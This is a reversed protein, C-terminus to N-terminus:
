SKKVEICVFGAGEVFGDVSKECKPPRDPSQLLTSRVKSISLGSLRLMNGLDELSYFRARSYVPHGRKKKEEYLAGWSSSKPIFGIVISGKRKLVRKVERLVALPNKVFCLTLVIFITGFTENRFPLIEGAAQVVRVRRRSAYRLANPAPDIGVAGPFWQAFRGTGVGVELVPPRCDELLTTLCHLESEYLPKGTESDYWSDYEETILDFIDAM